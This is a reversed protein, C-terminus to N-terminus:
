DIADIMRIKKKLQLRQQKAKEIRSTYEKVLGETSKSKSLFGINNELTNIESELDKLRLSLKKREAYLKNGSDDTIDDLKARFKEIERDEKKLNLKDFQANLENHYDNNISNKDKIPVHGIAAWEEKFKFLAKIDEEPSDGPVFAKIKEILAEKIKKNEEQREESGGYFGKKKEFFTDCAGRFQSWIKESYKRPVPGIEKWEKQLAILAETTAGWDESDKLSIAKELLLKKKELNEMQEDKYQKYYLRKNKFFTDCGKRFRRYILNNNQKPVIGITRWEEQLKQIKSAGQNWDKAKAYDSNAIAEVKECLDEKKKLNELQKEKLEAFYAHHRKNVVSTAEQFRQWISERIEKTVPGIEKWEQHLVQLTKFADIASPYEALKEAKICLKEKKEENRKFDLDRLDKNIKIYDYFHEVQLHYNQWLDNNRATPVAGISRWREQISHFIEFTERLSEEKEILQKLEEILEEKLKLNDEREQEQKAYFENKLKKYRNLEEKLVLELEDKPPQFDQEEGDNMLFAAKKEAVEKSLKLYFVSKLTEVQSKISMPSEADILEKLRKILEDRTATSYDFETTPKAAKEDNEKEIDPIVNEQTTEEQLLEKEEGM